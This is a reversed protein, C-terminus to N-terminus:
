LYIRVIQTIDARCTFCRGRSQARTACSDCYGAHGCPLVCFSRPRSYCVNCTTRPPRVNGVLESLSDLVNACKEQLEENAQKIKLLHENLEKSKEQMKKVLDEYGSM